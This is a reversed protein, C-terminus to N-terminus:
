FVVCLCCERVRFNGCRHGIILLSDVAAVFVIVVVVATGFQVCCAFHPGVHSNWYLFEAFDQRFRVMKRIEEGVRLVLLHFYDELESRIRKLDRQNSRIRQGFARQM